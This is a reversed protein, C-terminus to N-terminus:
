NIIITPVTPTNPYACTSSFTLPIANSFTRPIANSFTPPSPSTHRRGTDKRSNVFAHVVSTLTKSEPESEVLRRFMKYLEKHGNQSLYLSLFLALRDKRDPILVYFAQWKDPKPGSKDCLYNLLAVFSHVRTEKPMNKLKRIEEEMKDISIAELPLMLHDRKNLLMKDVVTEKKISPSKFIKIAFQILEDKNQTMNSLLNITNFVMSTTLYQRIIETDYPRKSAAYNLLNRRFEKSDTPATQRSIYKNLNENQNPAAMEKFLKELNNPDEKYYIEVISNFFKKIDNNDDFFVSFKCETGMAARLVQVIRYLFLSNAPIGSMVAAYIWIGAAEPDLLGDALANGYVFNEWPTSRLAFAIIREDRIQEDIELFNQLNEELNEKAIIPQTEM